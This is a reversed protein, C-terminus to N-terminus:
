ETSSDFVNVPSFYLALEANSLIARRTNDARRSQVNSNYRRYLAAEEEVKRKKEVIIRKASEMRKGSEESQSILETRKRTRKWIWLANKNSSGCKKEAEM